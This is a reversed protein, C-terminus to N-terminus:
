AAANAARLAPTLFLLDGVHDPRILLLSRPADLRPRPRAYLRGVFQLGWRRVVDRMPRRMM